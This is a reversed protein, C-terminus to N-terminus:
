RLLCPHSASFICFHQKNACVSERGEPRRGETRGEQRGESRRKQRGKLRGEPRRGERSGRRGGRGAEGRAEGGAEPDPLRRRCLAWRQGPRGMQERSPSWSVSRAGSGGGRQTARTGMEGPACPGGGSLDLDREHKRCLCQPVPLVAGDKPRVRSGPGCASPLLPLRATLRSRVRDWSSMCMSAQLSPLM